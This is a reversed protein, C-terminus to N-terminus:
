FSTNKWCNNSIVSARISLVNPDYHLYDVNQKFITEISRDIFSSDVLPCNWLYPHPIQTIYSVEEFRSFVNNEDGRIIEVRENKSLKRFYWKKQTSTAIIKIWIATEELGPLTGFFLNVQSMHWVKVPLRLFGMRSQIVAIHMRKANFTQRIERIPRLGDYPDSRRAKNEESETICNKEMLPDKMSLQVLVKNRLFGVIGLM